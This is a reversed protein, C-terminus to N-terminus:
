KERVEIEHPNLLLEVPDGEQIGSMFHAIIEIVSPDQFHAKKTEPHPYYIWGPWTRQGYHLGCRSFSFTEPPHLTTWAVQPFTYRPHVMTFILPAISINLTGEYFGDLNLGLSRFFPKQMALSGAPYPGDLAQGSAIKHGAVLVGHTLTWDSYDPEIM